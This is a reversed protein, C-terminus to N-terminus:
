VSEEYERHLHSEPDRDPTGIRILRVRLSGNVEVANDLPLLRFLNVISMVILERYNLPRSIALSPGEGISTSGNAM